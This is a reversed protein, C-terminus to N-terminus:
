PGIGRPKSEGILFAVDHGNRYYVTKGVVFQGIPVENSRIAYLVSSAGEVPPLSKDAIEGIRIKGYVGEPDYFRIYLDPVYAHVRLRNAYWTDADPPQAMGWRYPWEWQEGKDAPGVPGSFDRQPAWEGWGGRFLLWEFGPWRAPDAQVQERDPMLVVQPVARGATGTRDAMEVRANGVTIGQIYVEDGWFYNAHSGLAVYVAPHTGEEIQAASWPRRTGGHHQSLVLWEPKGAPTLMVQVLEWDGEHKNFADNYWYFLWYQITIQEAERGRVVHAYAIMPPGGAEPSLRSQYYARHATYSMYDSSPKDRLWANLYYGDGAYRLLDSATVTRLLRVHPGIPRIKHLQATRLMVEVPQPRFLEDPHFYLVPAYTEALRQDELWPETQAPGQALAPQASWILAALAPLAIV